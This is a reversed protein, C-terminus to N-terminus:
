NNIKPLTVKLTSDEVLGADKLAKGSELRKDNFYIHVEDSPGDYNFENRLWIIIKQIIDTTERSKHIEFM